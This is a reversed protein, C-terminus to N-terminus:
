DTEVCAMVPIHDSPCQRNPINDVSYATKIGEAHVGRVAIIDLAARERGILATPENDCTNVFGAEEILGRVPGGPRDNCDAFIAAPQKADLWGLLEKTQAIGSHRPENARAWKIHTNAFVVGGIVVSQMIHNSGDSYPRTVFNKVAITQRVLTLCGDPEGGKKQSWFQQWEGHMSLASLLSLEVEQLCIVDAELSAILKLIHPIRAGSLLLGPTVHRYDGYTLYAEALVNFSACRLRM